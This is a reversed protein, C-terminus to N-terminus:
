KYTSITDKIEKEGEVLFYKGGYAGRLSKLGCSKEVTEISGTQFTM